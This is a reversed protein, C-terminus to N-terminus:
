EDRKKSSAPWKFKENFEQHNYVVAQVNGGVRMLQFYFSSQVSYLKDIELPVAKSAEDFGEPATGYVINKLDKNGVATITWMPKILEGKENVEDINLGALSVGEGKCNEHRSICFKPYNYNTLDTVTFHWERECGLLTMVVVLTFLIISKNNLM